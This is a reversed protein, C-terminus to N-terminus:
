GSTVEEIMRVLEGIGIVDERGVLHVKRDDSCLWAAESQDLVDFLMNDAPDPCGTFVPRVKVQASADLLASRV